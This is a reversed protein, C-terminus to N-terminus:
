QSVPHFLHFVAADGDVREDLTHAYAYLNDDLRWRDLTKPWALPQIVTVTRGKISSRAWLTRGKNAIIDPAAPGAGAGLLIDLGEVGQSLFTFEQQRGWHSMGIVLDTAEHQKKIERRVAALMQESPIRNHDILPFHIVAIQKGGRIFRETMSSRTSLEKFVPPLGAVHDPGAHETLWEHEQPTVFVRDYRLMPYAKLFAPVYSPKPRVALDRKDFFEQAGGLVLMPGEPGLTTRLHNLTGARRAM